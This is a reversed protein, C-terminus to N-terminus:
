NFTIVGSQPSPNVITTGTSTGGCGSL